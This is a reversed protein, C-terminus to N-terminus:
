THTHTHSTVLLWIINDFQIISGFFCCPYALRHYISNSRLKQVIKMQQNCFINSISPLVYLAPVGACCIYATDPADASQALLMLMLYVYEISSRPSCLLLIVRKSNGALYITTVASSALAAVNTNAFRITLLLCSSYITKIKSQLFIINFITTLDLTSHFENIFQFFIHLKQVFCTSMEISTSISRFSLQCCSGFM